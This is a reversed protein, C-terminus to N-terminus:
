RVEQRPMKRSHKSRTPAFHGASQSAAVPPTLEPKSETYKRMEWHAADLLDIIGECYVSRNNFGDRLSHRTALHSGACVASWKCGICDTPLVDGGASSLLEKALHITEKISSNHVNRHLNRYNSSKDGIVKLQDLLDYSGDTEVFLYSIGRPGFWDTKPHQSITSQLADEFIRVKIEAFRPHAIWYHMATVMWRGFKAAM